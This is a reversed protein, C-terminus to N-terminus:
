TTILKNDSVILPDNYPFLLRMSVAPVVVAEAFCVAALVSYVSCIHEHTIPQEHAQRTLENM